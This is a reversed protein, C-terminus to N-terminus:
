KNFTHYNIVIEADPMFKDGVQFDTKGAVSVSEVSGDKTLWGTILDKIAVTKINTFGMNKLRMVVDRYDQKIFDNVNATIEIPCICYILVIESNKAFLEGGLFGSKGNVYISKVGGTKDNEDWSPVSDIKINFFGLKEFTDKVIEYSVSLLENSDVGVSVPQVCYTIVIKADWKFKDREGYGDDGNICVDVVSGDELDLNSMYVKQIEISRFGKEKFYIEVFDVSKGIFGQESSGVQVGALTACVFLVVLLAGAVPICISKWYEKFFDVVRVTTVSKKLKKQIESYRESLFQLVTVDTLCLKAKQYCREIMSLWADSIDEVDLHNAYYADDFNSCAYFFLECIDEKTNPIPFMRIIDIKQKESQNSIKESFEKVSSIAVAGRLEYGCVPCNATFSNLNEGCSPCKHIEGDFFSKGQSSANLEQQLGNQKDDAEVQSGCEGCFKAGAPLKGGCKKCYSM